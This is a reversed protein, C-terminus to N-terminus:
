HLRSHITPVESERQHKPIWAFLHKITTNKKPRTTKPKKKLFSKKEKQKINDYIKEHDTDDDNNDYNSKKTYNSNVISHFGDDNNSRIM